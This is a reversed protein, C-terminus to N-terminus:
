TALPTELLFFFNKKLCFLEHNGNNTIEQTHTHTDSEKHNGHVTAQWAGRNISNELCFVPTPQWKRRWPIKGFWPDFRPECM